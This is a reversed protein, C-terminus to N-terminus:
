KLLTVYGAISKRESNTNIVYYYTGAPLPKGNLTGDWPKSYNVTRYVRLGQPSYIEIVCDNYLNLNKIEWVDNIGDGNPTFTNPPDILKLAFIKVKDTRECGGIGTVKLTYDIDEVPNVVVPQLVDTASLYTPPSWTYVLNEGKATALIQKQGNDIVNIDPGASIEPFPHIVISKSAVNSKCGKDSTAFMKVTYTGAKTFLYSPDKSTSSTFVFDWNWTKISAAAGAKTDTVEKFDIPTGICVFDQSTINAEPQPFIDVLPQITKTISDKCGTSPVTSILKVTYDKLQLYNHIGKLTAGQNNGGPDGYNWLYSMSKNDPTTTLNTFEALGDPLCISNALAFDVIPNPNIEIARTLTDRCGNSTVVIHKVDYIGYAAFTKNNSLQAFSTLPNDSYIWEYSALTGTVPNGTSTFTIENKECILSSTSYDAVPSPWVKIQQTLTDFCGNSSTFTYKIPFDGAGVLYPRFIGDASVGAGSFAGNGAAIGTVDVQSALNLVSRQETDLCIGPISNFTVVPSGKILVPIQKETFCKEGSYAVMRIIYSKNPQNSFDTYPFSYEDDVLPVEDVFDANVDPVPPNLAPNWDWFVRVRTIRGFSLAAMASKNVIEIPTNSCLGAANLVNFDAVPDSGNVEFVTDKLEYCGDQSTVGLKVTYFGPATYFHQVPNPNNAAILNPYPNPSGPNGFDWEFKTLARADEINVLTGDFSSVDKVCSEPLSFDVVPNPYINIPKSLSDLCGTSSTVLLKISANKVDYTKAPNISVNSLADKIGDFEWQWNALTSFTSNSGPISQDTLTFPKDLCRVAAPIFDIKPKASVSFTTDVVQSVCGINTILRLKVNKIGETILLSDKSPITTESTAGNINWLYRSPEVDQELTNTASLQLKENVCGTSIASLDTVPPDFVRVDYDIEQEGTCDDNSGSANEIVIKVPFDGNISFRYVDSLRYVFLQKTPDTPSIVISDPVLPNGLDSRIPPDLAITGDNKKLVGSTNNFRWEIKLPKVPLTVSFKFPADKCTSPFAVTAFENEVSVKQNLNNVSTGANYGYSEYTGYGYVIANFGSDADITHSGVNLSLQFYVYNPDFPHVTPTQIIPNGDLLFKKGPIIGDKHIVLNLYHRNIGFNSTSNITVKNITQEIPSLYIMEPDGVSGTSADINCSSQQVPNNNRIDRNMTASSIFQAVLIPQDSEIVEPSSSSFEYYFGNRLSGSFIPTGNRRVITNPDKVAVRYINGPLVATPVTLYKKGWANPPFAQQMYNDSSGVNSNCTLSLKGSGSFVAIKKCASGSVPDPISRIRTGTLDEGTYRTGFIINNTSGTLRGFVTYVQGKNLRVTFPVNAPRGLETTASPTIEITTNDETAIVYSFSYSYNNNSVQEYNLSYYDNSLTSVPFLLTAGSVSQNYIHAYAIIPSTATIHIGNNSPGENVLRADKAGSKPMPASTTVQNATVNYTATWGLGPIEVTVTANRDSTFYLVMNQEGGSAIPSGPQIPNPIFATNTANRIFDPEYMAVHSGYGVWFEKGKNSLSQAQTVCTVFLIFFALLLPQKM